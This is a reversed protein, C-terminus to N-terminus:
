KKGGAQVIQDLRWGDIDTDLQVWLPLHDSIQFSFAQRTLKKGPYLEEIHADDVFFDLTGGALALRDDMTPLHLIQDYRATKELKTGGLVRTGATLQALPPPPKLGGSALRGQAPLRRLKLM